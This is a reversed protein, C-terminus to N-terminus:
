SVDELSAPPPAAPDRDIFIRAWLESLLTAWVRFSWVRQAIVPSRRSPRRRLLTAVRAPEFFGRRAVDAPKLLREAMLELTEVLSRGHRMQFPRKKRDIIAAPLLPRLAERLIWKEVGGLRMFRGPITAALEVVERALFPVRLELGHAMGTADARKLALHHLYTRQDWNLAVELARERSLGHLPPEPARPLPDSLPSAPLPGWAGRAVAYALPHRPQRDAYMYVREYLARRMGDTFPLKQDFLKFRDYGAFLEDSGEGVLLVKVHKAAAEYNLFMQVSEMQGAPEELYYMVRPALDALDPADVLLEFHDTGCHEAVLRANILDPDDHGHGVTFTKVSGGARAMLAVIGSSDLGGSLAAGLSVDSVLQAEVTRALTDRLTTALETPDWDRPRCDPHTWFNAVDMRGDTWVLREGPLLKHVGALMSETELNCAFRLASRLARRNVESRFGPLLRFVKLESAFALGGDRTAHWFLPKVGTHDRALLLRRRPEDWLGFAFIGDLRGVFDDGWQRYAHLLVETDTRTHFRHGLHELEDRLQRFNYIEGNFTVCLEGDDSRMPQHGADTPDLISLRRHGFRVDGSSWVGEDDPGRHTLLGTMRLLLDDDGIRCLGVIGCM